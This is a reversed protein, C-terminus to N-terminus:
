VLQENLKSRWKPFADVFKSDINEHNIVRFVLDNDQHADKYARKYQERGSSRVTNIINEVRKFQSQIEGKELSWIYTANSNLLEWVFHNNENGEILFLFGFAPNLTYRLKHNESQKKGALYALQKRNRINTKTLMYALIDEESQNFINGEVDETDIQAFLEDATFLSQDPNIINSPKTLASTRQYKIGDILQTTIQDIHRSSASTKTIENDTLIIEVTVQFKRTKLKKAFWFKINEFEPLLNDNYIKFDVQRGLTKLYKNFVVYGLKFHADAFSVRFDERVTTVSPPTEFPVSLDITEKPEDFAESVIERFFPNRDMNFLCQELKIKQYGTLLLELQTWDFKEFLIQTVEKKPRQNEFPSLDPANYDKVQVKLSKNDSEYAMMEVRWYIADHTRFTLHAKPINTQEIPISLLPNFFVRDNSM